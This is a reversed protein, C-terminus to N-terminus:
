LRDRGVLKNSRRGSNMHRVLLEYLMAGAKGTSGALSSVHPDDIPFKSLKRREDAYVTLVSGGADWFDAHNAFMRAVENLFTSKIQTARHRYQIAAFPWCEDIIQYFTQVNQRFVPLTVTAAARQLAAAMMDVIPSSIATHHSHLLMAARAFQVIRILEGRGMSDSWCVREYLPFAKTNQTLGYLTLVADNKARMNRMHLSGSVKRVNKNLADFRTMEWDATTNFHVMAFLRIGLQPVLDLLKNASGIRGGGDIIHAPSRIIYDGGDCHFDQGRVGIDIAPPVEGRKLAEFIDPRDGQRRQYQRDDIKLFRFTSPDVRGMLIIGSPSTPDEDLTGNIIRLHPVVRTDLLSKREFTETAITLM